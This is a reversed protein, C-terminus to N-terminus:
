RPWEMASTSSIVASSASSTKWATGLWGCCAALREHVDAEAVDAEALRGRRERAALRLAHLQGRLERPAGGALRDVDEVLRGGPEVERVDLLEELHEVPEHVRAVRDDDDLVVQVDDLRGVPDDVQARLAAGAAPAITASPVGSRTASAGPDAVPSYRARTRRPSGSTGSLSTM